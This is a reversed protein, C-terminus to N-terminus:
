RHKLNPIKSFGTMYKLYIFILQTVHSNLSTITTSPSLTHTLHTLADDSDLNSEIFDVLVSM